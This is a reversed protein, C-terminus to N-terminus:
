HEQPNFTYIVTLCSSWYKYVQIKLGLKLIKKKMSFIMKNKVTAVSPKKFNLRSKIVQYTM